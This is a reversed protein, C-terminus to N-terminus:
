VATKQLHNFIFSLKKLLSKDPQQKLNAVTAAINIVCGTAMGVTAPISCLCLMLMKRSGM